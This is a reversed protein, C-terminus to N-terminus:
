AVSDRAIEPSPQYHFTLLVGTVALLIVLFLGIGGFIHLWGARGPLPRRWAKFIAERLPLREELPWYMVGMWSLLNGFYRNEVNSGIWNKFRTWPKM